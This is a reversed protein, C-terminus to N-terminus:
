NPRAISELAFELDCGEQMGSIQLTVGMSLM